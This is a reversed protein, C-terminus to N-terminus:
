ECLYVTTFTQEDFYPQCEDSQDRTPVCAGKSCGFECKVGTEIEFHKQDDKCSYELLFCDAGSCKEVGNSVTEKYCKDQFWLDQGDPSIGSGTGSVLYISGSDSDECHQPAETTTIGGTGVLVNGFRLIALFFKLLREWFTEGESSGGANNQQNNNGSQGQQGTQNNGPDINGCSLGNNVTGDCDNDLSDCIEAEPKKDSCEEWTGDAQCDKYGKYCIGQDTGCIDFGGPTCDTDENCDTITEVVDCTASFIGDVCKQAGVTCINNTDCEQTKNNQCEAGEDISGDCTNDIKDTVVKGNSNKKETADPTKFGTNNECVASREVGDVCGTKFQGCFGDAASSLSIIQCSIIPGALEEDTDGDCDNDKNDCTENTGKVEGICAGWQGSSCTQTGATCEGEDSGCTRSQTGTCSSLSCGTSDITCSATCSLTGSAFGQTVCTKSNLDSGDCEEGTNILGNGCQACVNGEDIQTDCDNDAGDCIETAGPYTRNDANNCDLQAGSSCGAFGPNGFGDEDPDVCQTQQTGCQGNNCAYSAGYQTQCWTNGGEDSTGDCDDDIGNCTEAASPPNCSGYAGNSCIMTGTGCSPKTPSNIGTSCSQNQGQTCGCIGGGICTLGSITCDGSFKSPEDGAVPNGTIPAIVAPVPASGGGGICYYDYAINGDCYDYWYKINDTTVYGAVNFNSEGDSDVCVEGGGAADGTIRLFRELLDELIGASVLSLSLILVTSLVLFLKLNSNKSSFVKPDVRKRM